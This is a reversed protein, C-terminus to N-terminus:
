SQAKRNTDEDPRNVIQNIASLTFYLSTGLGLCGVFMCVSSVITDYGSPSSLVLCLLGAVLAAAAGFARNFVRDTM